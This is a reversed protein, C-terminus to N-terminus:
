GNLEELVKLKTQLDDVTFKTILYHKEKLLEYKEEGLSKYVWSGFLVPNKHFYFHCSACLCLLNELDWRTNNYTRSYIHCCQLTHKKGCAQCKGRKRVIESCLKDLKRRLTTKTPLKRKKRLKDGLIKDNNALIRKLNKYTAGARSSWKSYGAKEMAEKFSGSTKLAELFRAQKITM